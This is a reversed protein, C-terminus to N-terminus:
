TDIVKLDQWSHCQLAGPRDDFAVMAYHGSYGQSCVGGDIPLPDQTLGLKVAIQYDTQGPHQKKTQADPKWVTGQHTQVTCGMSMCKWEVRM